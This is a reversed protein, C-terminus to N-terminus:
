SDYTDLISTPPKVRSRRRTSPHSVIFAGRPWAHPRYVSNVTLDVKLGRCTAAALSLCAKVFSVSFLTYSLTITIENANILFAVMHESIGNKGRAVFQSTHILMVNLGTQLM